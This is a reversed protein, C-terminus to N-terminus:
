LREPCNQYCRSWTLPKKVRGAPSQSTDCPFGKWAQDTDDPVLAYEANGLYRRGVISLLTPRASLVHRLLRIDTPSTRLSVAFSMRVSATVPGTIRPARQRGHGGARKTELPAGEVTIPVSRHPNESM